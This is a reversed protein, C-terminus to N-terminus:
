PLYGFTKPILLVIEPVFSILFLAFLLVTIFPIIEKFIRSLPTETLGSIIFLNVGYPPTSLGIMLNFVAVVGFHVLDIGVAHLIPLFIPIVIVLVVMTDLFMGLLLFMINIAFLLIIPNTMIEFSTVFEAASVAIGEKAVVYSFLFAAAVIFAVYGTSMVVEKLLERLKRFGLVRYVLMTLILAYFSAAAAAETPTFVGSYIGGLLIVPTLLPLFSAVFKAFVNKVSFAEGAPYDRKKSVWWIYIMLVLGLILGPLIGGLFLYGTSAGSISAYIVMPISPPIIPGVTSSAATVACSFASDFGEDEMATTAMYGVGSTDALASGTMGSFILSSVVNVHALGGKLSGVLSNAFGFIKSTIDGENMVRGAFIFLPISVLVFQTQFHIAMQDVIVAPDIGELIIYLMSSTAIAFAVPYGLAFMALFTFIWIQLSM